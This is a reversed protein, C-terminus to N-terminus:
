KMKIDKNLKILRLAFKYSEDRLPDRGAVM